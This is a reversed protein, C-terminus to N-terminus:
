FWESSASKWEEYKLLLEDLSSAVIGRYNPDGTILAWEKVDEHWEIHTAYTCMKKLKEENIESFIYDIKQEPTM